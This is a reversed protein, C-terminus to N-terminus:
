SAVEKRVAKNVVSKATEGDLVKLELLADALAEIQFWHAFVLNRAAARM